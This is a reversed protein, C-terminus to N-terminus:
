RGTSNAASSLCQPWFPGASISGFRAQVKRWHRAPARARCRSALHRGRMREVRQRQQAQRQGARAAAVRRVAVDTSVTNRWTQRPPPSAPSAPAGPRAPRARQRRLAVRAAVVTLARAAPAVGVLGDARPTNPTGVSRPRRGGTRPCRRAASAARRAARRRRTRRGAIPRPAVLAGARQASALSHQARLNRVDSFRCRPNDGSNTLMPETERFGPDSRRELFAGGDGRRPRPVNRPSSSIAVVCIRSSPRM